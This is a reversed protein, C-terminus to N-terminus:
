NDYEIIYLAGLTVREPSGSYRRGCIKAFNNMNKSVYDRYYYSFFFSFPICLIMLICKLINEFFILLLSLFLIRQMLHLM